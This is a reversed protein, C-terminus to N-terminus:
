FSLKGALSIRRAEDFQTASISGFLSNAPATNPAAFMAHNLANQGEARLQFRIRECLRFNKLLSIDWQDFGDARLGSLRLPFTRMNWALAKTALQTLNNITAQDRYPLRSYYVGPVFDLDSSVGLKTGRNGVYSAEVLVRWPLERQM